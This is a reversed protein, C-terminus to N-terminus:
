EELDPIETLRIDNHTFYYAGQYANSPTSSGNRKKLEGVLPSLKWEKNEFDELPPNDSIVKVLINNDEVFLLETGIKIGKKSFCFRASKKYISNNEIEEAIEAEVIEKKTPKILKLKDVDGRLKAISEIVSFVKEKDFSFFERQRFSGKETEERARLSEDVSDIIKFIETEVMTLNDDVEYLAYVRFSFPLCSKDNLSKLREKLNKTKGIKQYNPFSPNTLIYIYGKDQSM